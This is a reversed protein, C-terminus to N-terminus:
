RRGFNCILGDLSNDADMYIYQLDLYTVGGMERLNAFDGPALKHGKYSLGDNGNDADNRVAPLKTTPDIGGVYVAGTNGSFAQVTAWSAPIRSTALPVPTGHTTVAKTITYLM